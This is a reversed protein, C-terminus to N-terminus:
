YKLFKNWTERCFIKRQRVSWSAPCALSCYWGRGWSFYTWGVWDYCDEGLRSLLLQYLDERGWTSRWTNKGNAKHFLERWAQVTLLRYLSTAMWWIGLHWRESTAFVLEYDWWYIRRDIIGCGGITGETGCKWDESVFFFTHITNEFFFFNYYWRLILLMM